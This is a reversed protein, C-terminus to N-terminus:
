EGCALYGGDPYFTQGTCYSSLDSALFVAFEAIEEPRGLRRFPIRALIAKEDLEGREVASRVHDTEVWGPAIANVRVGYSAWESGLVRTLESVGAKAACYPARRPLGRVGSVSGINIVAGSGQKTMHRGAAQACAFVGSLNTDVVARWREESMELSPGREQVGANNVDIDIHGHDRQVGDFVERVQSWDRVDLVRSEAVGYEALEDSAERARDFHRSTIVVAAGAGLLAKAIAHGIGHAGGTVVAVRGSLLAM